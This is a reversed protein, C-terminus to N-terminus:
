TSSLPLTALVWDAWQEETECNSCLEYNNHGNPMCSLHQVKIVGCEWRHPGNLEGNVSTYVISVGEDTTM